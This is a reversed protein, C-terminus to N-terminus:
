LLWGPVTTFLAAVESWFARERESPAYGGLTDWAGDPFLVVLSGGAEVVVEGASGPRVFTGASVAARWFEQAAVTLDADQGLLLLAPVPGAETVFGGWAKTPACGQNLPVHVSDEADLGLALEEPDVDDALWDLADQFENDYDMLEIWHTM